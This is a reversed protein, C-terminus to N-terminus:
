LLEALVVLPQGAQEGAAVVRAAFHDILPDMRQGVDLFGQTFKLLPLDLDFVEVAAQNIKGGDKAVFLNKEAPFLVLLVDLEPVIQVGAVGPALSESGTSVLAFHPDWREIAGTGTFRTFMWAAAPFISTPRCPFHARAATTPSRSRSTRRTPTTPPSVFRM